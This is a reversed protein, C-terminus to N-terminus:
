LRNRKTQQISQITEVLNTESIEACKINTQEKLSSLASNDGGATLVFISRSSASLKSALESLQVDARPTIFYLVGGRPLQELLSTVLWTFSTKGDCTKVYSFRLLQQGFEEGNTICACEPTCKECDFWCITAEEDNQVAQLSLALAAEIITDSVAANEESDVSYANLDCFVAISSSKNDAMQRVMYEDLKASMNWHIQRLSDGDDYRRVFNMESGNRDNVSIPSFECDGAGKIGDGELEFRRPLVIINKKLRLKKKLCFIKLVDFCRLETFALTYNGRYKLCYNMSLETHSFPELSFVIHAKKYKEEVGPLQAIMELPALPFPTRNRVHVAIQFDQEKEYFEERVDTKISIFLFPLLQLIFTVAPLLLVSLFLVASFNGKYIWNFTLTLLVLFAYIIRYKKM